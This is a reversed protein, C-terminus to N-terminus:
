QKPDGCQYRLRAIRMSSWALLPTVILFFAAAGRAFYAPHDGGFSLAFGLEVACVIMLSALAELALSRRTQLLRIIAAKFHLDTQLM